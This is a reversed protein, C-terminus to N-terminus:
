FIEKKNFFMSYYGRLKKIALLSTASLTERTITHLPQQLHGCLATTHPCSTNCLIKHSNFVVTM